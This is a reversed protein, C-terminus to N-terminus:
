KTEAADEVNSIKCIQSGETEGKLKKSVDMKDEAPGELSQHIRAIPVENLGERTHFEINSSIHM